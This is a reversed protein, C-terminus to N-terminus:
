ELKAKTTELERKQKKAEALLEAHTDLSRDAELHLQGIQEDQLTCKTYYKDLDQSATM